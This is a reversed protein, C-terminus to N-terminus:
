FGTAFNPQLWREPLRVTSKMSVDVLEGVVQFHVKPSLEVADVSPLPVGSSLEDDLRHFADSLRNHAGTM